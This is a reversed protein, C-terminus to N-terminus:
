ILPDVEDTPSDSSNESTKSDSTKIGFYQYMENLYDDDMDDGEPLEAFIESWSKPEFVPPDSLREPDRFSGNLINELLWRTNSAQRISKMYTLARDVEQRFEGEKLQLKALSDRRAQESADSENALERLRIMSVDAMRKTNEVEKLKGEYVQIQASQEDIDARLQRKSKNFADGWKDSISNSALWSSRIRPLTKKFPWVM